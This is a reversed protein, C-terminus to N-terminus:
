HTTFQICEMVRARLNDFFKKKAMIREISKPTVSINLLYNKLSILYLILIVNTIGHHYKAARLLVTSEQDVLLYLISVRLGELYYVVRGFGCYEVEVRFYLHYDFRVSVFHYYSLAPCARLGNTAGPIYRGVKDSM